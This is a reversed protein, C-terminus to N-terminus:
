KMMMLLTQTHLNRSIVRSSFIPFGFPHSHNDSHHHSSERQSGRVAETVNRTSISGTAIDTTRRKTEPSFGRSVFPLLHSRQHVYTEPSDRRRVQTRRRRRRKEALHLPYNKKQTTHKHRTRQIM